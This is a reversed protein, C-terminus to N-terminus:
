SNNTERNNLFIVTYLVFINMGIILAYEAIPQRAEKQRLFFGQRTTNTANGPIPPVYPIVSEEENILYGIIEEFSGAKYSYSIPQGETLSCKIWFGSFNFDCDM